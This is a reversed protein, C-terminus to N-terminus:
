NIEFNEFDHKTDFDYFTNIEDIKVKKITLPFKDNTKKYIDRAGKDGVIKLLKDRLQSSFLMPNGRKEEQFPAVILTEKNRDIYFSDIIKKITEKSVFPQDAM